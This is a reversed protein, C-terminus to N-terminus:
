DRVLGGKPFRDVHNQVVIRFETSSMNNSVFENGLTNIAEKLNGCRQKRTWKLSCRLVGNKEMLAGYYEMSFADDEGYIYAFLNYLLLVSFLPM